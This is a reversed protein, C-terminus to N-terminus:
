RKSVPLRTQDAAAQRRQARREIWAQMATLRKLVGNSFAELQKQAMQQARAHQGARSLAVVNSATIHFMRHQELLDTFGRYQGLRTRGPGYLWQGLTCRSDFCLAEANLRPDCQGVSCARLRELLRQHSDISSPLDLGGVSTPTFPM